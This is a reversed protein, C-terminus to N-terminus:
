ANSQDLRVFEDIKSGHLQAKIVFLGRSSPAFVLTTGASSVVLAESPAM